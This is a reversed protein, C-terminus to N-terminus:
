SARLGPDGPARCLVSLLTTKGTGAPGILVSFRRVALEALAAAKEQRAREEKDREDGEAPLRELSSTSSAAGTPASSTLNARRRAQRRHQPDARRSEALRELQYARSGDAMEVLRIEGPSSSTKQSPWCTPPSRPTTNTKKRRVRACPRSSPRRRTCLTDGRVTANELERIALARLRRADVATRVVPIAEPLRTASASSPPPSCVAISPALPWPYGAHPPNSRLRPVPNRLLDADDLTRHGREARTEPV